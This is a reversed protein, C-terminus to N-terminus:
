VKDSSTRKPLDKSDRYAMDRQFRVKDLESQDRPDIKFIDQIYRLDGTEKFNQIREKNKTFPGCARYTFGPKRLHMESM